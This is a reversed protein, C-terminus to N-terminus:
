WTLRDKRRKPVRRWRIEARIYSLIGCGVVLILVWVIVLLAVYGLNGAHM